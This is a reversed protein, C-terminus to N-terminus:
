QVNKTAVYLGTALSREVGGGDNLWNIIDYKKSPEASKVLMESSGGGDLNMMNYCGLAQMISCMAPYQLGNSWTYRRGDAVMMWLTTGDDEVGLATRPHRDTLGDAQPTPINVIVGHDILLPGGASAEVITESAAIAKYDSQDAMDITGDPKMYWFCRPRDPNTSLVNFTSKYCVGKHHFIGQPGKQADSGFDSNIAAWVYNQASDVRAIMESLPEMRTQFNEGAWTQDFSINAKATEAKLFWIRMPAGDKGLYHVFTYTLGDTITKEEDSYLCGIVDAKEVLAKGVATKAESSVYPPQIPAKECGAFVSALTMLSVIYLLKRM